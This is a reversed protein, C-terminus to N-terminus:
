LDYIIQDDKPHSCVVLLHVVENTVNEIYHLESSGPKFGIFDGSKMLFTQNGFHCTPSGNLVVIMEERLTHSHPASTRRGPPLIEHHVFIAQFGFLETLVVSKSYIEGTKESVLEQHMLNNLNSINM